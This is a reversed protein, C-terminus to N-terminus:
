PFMDGLVRRLLPGSLDSKAIFAHAASRKLSAAYLRADRSSMLIVVPSPRLRSLELAVAFGDPGPLRIDLLVVDPRKRRALMLADGANSAEGVVRFGDAGLMTVIAARVEDHDDVVLVGRVMPGDHGEEGPLQMTALWVDSDAADPRVM